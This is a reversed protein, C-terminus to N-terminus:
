PQVEGRTACREPKLRIQFSLVPLSDVVKVTSREVSVDVFMPSEELLIQYAALDGAQRTPPGHVLGEIVVVAETTGTSAPLKGGTKDKFAATSIEVSVWEIADSTRQALEAMLALAQDRKVARLRCQGKNVVADVRAVVGGTDLLESPENLKMEMKTQQRQLAFLRYAFVAWTAVGALTLLLFCFFIVHHFNLREAREVARQTPNLLNLGSATDSYALGCATVYWGDPAKGERAVGASAAFPAALPNLEEVPLGVHSRIFDRVEPCGALPGSLHLQRLDLDSTNVTGAELTLDFQRMLRHLVPGFAEMVAARSEGPSGAIAGDPVSIQELFRNSVESSVHPGLAAEVFASVGLRFERNIVVRQRSWLLIHTSESGIHLFLSDREHELMGGREILHSLSCGPITLGSLPYGAERFIQTIHEVDQERVACAVVSTRRGGEGISEGVVTYDVFMGKLSSSLERRLAWRVAMPLQRSPVNPLSLNRQSMGPFDATAWVTVHGCFGCFRQLSRTLLKAYEPSSLSVGPPIALSEVAEIHGGVRRALRISDAGLQVGVATGVCSGSPSSVAPSRRKVKEGAKDFM